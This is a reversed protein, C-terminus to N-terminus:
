NEGKENECAVEYSPLGRDEVGEKVEEDVLDEYAPPSDFLMALSVTQVDAVETVAEM